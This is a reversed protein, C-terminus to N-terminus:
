CVAPAPTLPSTRLIRFHGLEDTLPRVGDDEAPPAPARAAVALTSLAGAQSLGAPAPRDPDEDRGRFNRLSPLVEVCLASLPADEPLGLVRLLMRVEADTWATAGRAPADVNQFAVSLNGAPDEVRRRVRPLVRLKRDDLLINRWDKGDAQKVQAYLLAWLESRPPEATITKGNLVAQAFPAEVRLLARDRFVTCFLTPAPHQAGTTRLPRGFRGQATSWVGAHGVRIEYTFFGFLEPADPGLGPPLPVLFHRDSGSAREMPQMAALGAQDDSQGPAIVRILEPDLAIEPEEPAAFTELRNDSLLPDPGYALLRIFYSDNPDRVPEEVELWLFRRRPETAAYTADRRYASLAVGASVLRPVQAPRTTVPLRLQYARPPDAQEPAARFRTEIRYDLAIEDPFRAEGPAGARPRASKPEVADLFVLRTSARDPDALALNDITQDIEIDGVPGGDNDDIEADALFRQERFIEFAVKRANDWSWDRDLRLTLAVIWHNLLEDRGALTLSSQDPALTHRIRRSCGFVVREGRRGVLTLGKQELRLALALRQIMTPRETTQRRRFLRSQLRGDFLEPPDPQLYIGRISEAPALEALLGREDTSERRLKIQLPRGVDAGPAFYAPDPDGVARLTLRIERATPLVIEALADIEAVSLGLDGLDNPDGYRLTAADRFALPLTLTAAFDVPFDRHTTYLRYFPERGSLSLANDLKLGRVEVDIRLRTADPDPIGFSEQGQLAVSAAQLLPIPDAYKGTFVVSPYNLLPRDVSLADGAFYTDLPDEPLTPAGAVRVPQPAVHRRFPLAAIPAAGETVPEDDLAPGGGTPDMLRCRIEYSAGYRLPTADLGMPEYLRGLAAQGRVEQETMYLDAATEDPLVLSGGTWHALYMPLWFQGAVQDGDFQAPHAEVGLEGEFVGLDVAGITLPARSRVRTLSTWAAQGVARVDFRYAFVGSPADLRQPMGPAPPVSPDEMLARNQRIVLDDDDGGMSVGTDNLPPFGDPTEMLLNQSVPQRAHVIKVFGDDFSAAEAFVGDFNGPAPPPGPILPDDILVPFLVPAFLQRAAGAQLRPIRAAYRKVFAADADAQARYASDPVLGVFLFGGDDFVGPPAAFTTERILGLRRALLPHRLCYAYIQGWSVTDPTIQFNPNFAAGGKMACHYSDDTVAQPSRPGTFLFADRYSQPLYKKVFIQPRAPEALRPPDASLQFRGPVPAVMEQFLTRADAQVGSADPLAVTADVPADTPFDELGAHIRAELRIDADAFAPTTDGPNPFDAIVPSLPDGNWAASLRPMVMVSLTIRGGEVRQPFPLLSLYTDM